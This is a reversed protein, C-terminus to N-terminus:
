RLVLRKAQEQVAQENMTNTDFRMVDIYEESYDMIADYQSNLEKYYNSIM